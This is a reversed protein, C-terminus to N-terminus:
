GSSEGGPLRITFKSGVGVESEVSISGNHKNIIGYCISLGLGTGKGPGKTTFFPDFIRSLDEKPIGIGTDEIIIMINSNEYQTKISLIGGDPMANIANTMMNVFVQRLQAGDAMISPIDKYDENLQINTTLHQIVYLAKKLESNIETVSIEPESQRSFDLLSRVITAARDSQENIIEVKQIIDKDTSGQLKLKKLIVQAYLSINALPNNIEHAVGAALQGITALKESQLLQRELIIKENIKTDLNEAMKNFAESLVSLEDRTKVQVRNGLNGEGIESVGKMLENIPRGILYGSIYALVMGLVGVSMTFIVLMRDIQSLDSIMHKRDMGVHVYGAKGDLIPAMYEVIVETGTKFLLPENENSISIYPMLDTPFGGEFSHALIQGNSDEIYIYSIDVQDNEIKNLIRYLNVRDETLIDELNGSAISRAITLGREGLEDSFSKAMTAHVYYTTLGGLILAILFTGLIFKKTLTWQFIDKQDYKFYSTILKLFMRTDVLIKKNKM